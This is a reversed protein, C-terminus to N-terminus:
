RCDASRIMRQATQSYRLITQIAAQHAAQITQMNRQKETYDLQNNRERQIQLQELLGEIQHKFRKVALDSIRGKSSSSTTSPFSSASSPFSTRSTTQSGKKSTSTTSPTFRTRNSSSSSVKSMRRNRLEASREPVRGPKFLISPESFLGKGDMKTDENWQPRKKRLSTSVNKERRQNM